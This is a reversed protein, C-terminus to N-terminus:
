FNIKELGRSEQKKDVDFMSLRFRTYNSASKIFSIPDYFFFVLENEIITKALLFSGHSNKRTFGVHTISDSENTFYTRLPKNIFIAKYKKAIPTWIVNEPVHGEVNEPFPYAKLIETKICGWKEGSVHYRYRMDLSNSLWEDSPYKDGIIDGKENKCLCAVGSINNKIDDSQKEYVDRFIELTDLEFEDDSDAPIFLFGKAERVGHNFAIKKHGNEQYVYRITVGGNECFVKVVDKTNDTSGDDIILWEFDKFTQRKLSEYVRCLLDARNYTPTFITFYPKMVDM